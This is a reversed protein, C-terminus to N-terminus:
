HNKLTYEEQFFVYVTIEKNTLYKSYNIKFSLTFKERRKTQSPGVKLGELELVFKDHGKRRGLIRRHRQNTSVVFNGAEFGLRRKDVQVFAQWCQRYSHARVTRKSFERGIPLEGSEGGCCRAWVVDWHREALALLPGRDRRGRVELVADVGAEVVALADEDAQRGLPM